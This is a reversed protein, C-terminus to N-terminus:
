RKEERALLMSLILRIFRLTDKIPHIASAEDNYISKIPISLIKFRDRAAKILMESETEYKSTTLDIKKLLDTKIFRFGCQTDPIYQGTFGSIFKSMYRNTLRRILPMTRADDMRNGIILDAGSAKAHQIFRRIDEPRHQGDGDMVVIGDYKNILAHVFGAKLSAGKGRNTAHLIVHAGSQRAILGTNDNSGDDIVVVDFAMKRVRNVIDAIARSENYTPIIVCVRM